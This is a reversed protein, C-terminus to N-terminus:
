SEEFRIQSQTKAGKRSIDQDKAGTLMRRFYMERLPAFVCLNKTFTPPKKM